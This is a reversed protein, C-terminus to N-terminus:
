ADDAPQHWGFADSHMKHNMLRRSEAWIVKRLLRRNCAAMREELNGATL